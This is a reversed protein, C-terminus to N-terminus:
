FQTIYITGISVKETDFKGAPFACDRLQFWGVGPGGAHLVVTFPCDTFGGGLMFDYGSEVGRITVTGNSNIQGTHAVGTFVGWGQVACIFEGFASGDDRIKVDVAFDSFGSSTFAHPTDVFEGISGGQVLATVSDTAGKATGLFCVLVLVALILISNAKTKM